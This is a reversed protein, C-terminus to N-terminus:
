NDNKRVEYEMTNGVTSNEHVEQWVKSIVPDITGYTFGRYLLHATLKKKFNIWDLEKFRHAKKIAANYALLKEDEAMEMARDIIESSIGKKKLEYSLQRRSRPKTASRNEIWQSAYNEDDVLHCEKLKNIVNNIVQESYNGSLLKQTVEYETRQRYAIFEIAKRYAVKLIDEDKLSAIFELNLTQGIKLKSAIESDLGFAFNGDLYVNVRTKNNKQYRLDTLQNEMFLVALCRIQM